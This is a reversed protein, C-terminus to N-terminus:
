RGSAADPPTAPMTEERSMYTLSISRYPNPWARLLTHALRKGRNRASGRDRRRMVLNQNDIEATLHRLQDRAAHALLADIGLDHRELLGFGGEPFHLRFRHDEGATRFRHM